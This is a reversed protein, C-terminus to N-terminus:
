NDLTTPCIIDIVRGLGTTTFVIDALGVSAESLGEPATLTRTGDSAAPGAQLWLCRDVVVTPPAETVDVPVVRVRPNASLAVRM